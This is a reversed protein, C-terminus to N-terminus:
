TNEHNKVRFGFWTSDQNNLFQQLEGFHFKEGVEGRLCTDSFKIEFDGPKDDFRLYKIEQVNILFVSVGWTYEVDIELFKM